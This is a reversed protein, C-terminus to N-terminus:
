EKDGRLETRLREILRYYISTVTKVKLGLEDAIDAFPQGYLVRAFLIHLEREKTQSLAKQLTCNELIDIVPLGTLLEGDSLLESLLEPTDLSLELIQLKYKQRLYQTKRNRLATILYATFRNHLIDDESIGNNHERM